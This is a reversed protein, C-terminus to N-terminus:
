KRGPIKRSRREEEEIKVGEDEEGVKKRSGQKADKNGEKRPKKGEM